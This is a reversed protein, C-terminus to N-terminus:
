KKTDNIGGNLSLDPMIKTELEFKDWAKDVILSENININVEKIEIKEVVKSLGYNMLAFGSIVGALYVVLCLLVITSKNTGM